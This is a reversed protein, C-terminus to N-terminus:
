NSLSIAFGLNILQLFTNIIGSNKTIQYKFTPVIVITDYPSFSISSIQNSDIIQNLNKIKSMDEISNDQSIIKVKSLDAGNMPGGAVSLLTIIDIKEYVLYTGPNKVHGWVNIYIRKIGDEGTIYKEGTPSNEFNQKIPFCITLFSIFIILKIKEM